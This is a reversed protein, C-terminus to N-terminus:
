REIKYFQKQLNIKNRVCFGEVFVENKRDSVRIIWLNVRKAVGKQKKCTISKLHNKQANLTFVSFPLATLLLIHTSKESNDYM